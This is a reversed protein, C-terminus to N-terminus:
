QTTRKITWEDKPKQRSTLAPIFPARLVGHVWFTIYPTPAFDKEDM